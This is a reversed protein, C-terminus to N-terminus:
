LMLVLVLLERLAVGAAAEAAEDFVNVCSSLALLSSLGLVSSLSPSLVSVFDSDSSDKRLGRFITRIGPRAGGNERGSVSLEHLALTIGPVHHTYHMIISSAIHTHTQTHNLPVVANAETTWM